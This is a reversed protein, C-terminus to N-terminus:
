KWKEQIRATREHIQRIKELDNLFLTLFSVVIYFSKTVKELDSRQGPANANRRERRSRHESRSRDRSPTRRDRHEPRRNKDRRNEANQSDCSVDTLDSKLATEPTYAANTKHKADDEIPDYKERSKGALKRAENRHTSRPKEHRLCAPTTRVVARNGEKAVAEEPQKDTTAGSQFNTNEVPPGLRTKISTEPQSTRRRKRIPAPGPTPTQYNPEEGESSGSADMM